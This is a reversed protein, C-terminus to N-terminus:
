EPAGFHRHDKDAKFRMYAVNTVTAFFINLLLPALVCGQRLGPEVAFWGSWVRDGLLVYARMGGHFPRIVLIM